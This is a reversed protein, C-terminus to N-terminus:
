AFAGGGGLGVVIVIMHPGIESECFTLVTMLIKKVDSKVPAVLGAESGM